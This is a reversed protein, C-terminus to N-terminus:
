SRSSLVGPNRCLQGGSMRKITFARAPAGTASVPQQQTGKVSLLGPRSPRPSFFTPSKQAVSNAVLSRVKKINYLQKQGGKRFTSAAPIRRLVKLSAGLTYDTSTSAVQDLGAKPINSLSDQLYMGSRSIKSSAGRPCLHEVIISRSSSTSSHSVTPVEEEFGTEIPHVVLDEAELLPDCRLVIRFNRIDPMKEIYKAEPFQKDLSLLRVEGQPQQHGDKSIGVVLYNDILKALRRGPISCEQLMKDAPAPSGHLALCMLGNQVAVPIVLKKYKASDRPSAQIHRLRFRGVLMALWFLATKRLWLSDNALLDFRFGALLEYTKSLDERSWVHLRISDFTATTDM